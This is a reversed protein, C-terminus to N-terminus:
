SFAQVIINNVQLNLNNKTTSALLSKDRLNLKYPNKNESQTLFPSKRTRLVQVGWHSFTFMPNNNFRKKCVICQKFGSLRKFQRKAATKWVLNCIILRELHKKLHHM